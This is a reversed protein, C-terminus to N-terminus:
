ASSSARAAAARSSSAASSSPSSGTPRPARPARRRRPSSPALEGARQAGGALCGRSGNAAATASSSRPTPMPSPSNRTSSRSRSGPGVPASSADEQDPRVGPRGNPGTASVAEPPSSERTASASAATPPPSVSTKSSISAPMPPSVACATAAVSRRSASRACTIVIVCRGWIALTASACKRTSFTGPSGVCVRISRRSSAWRRSSSSRMSPPRSNREVSSLRSCARDLVGARGPEAPPRLLEDPPELRVVDRDDVVGVEVADRGLLEDLRADADDDVDGARLGPAVRVGARQQEHAAADPQDVDGVDVEEVLDRVALPQRHAARAEEPVAGASAVPRVSPSRSSAPASASCCPRTVSASSSKASLM